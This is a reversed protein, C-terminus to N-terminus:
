RGPPLARRATKRLDDRVQEGLSKTARRNLEAAVAAGTFLPGLTTLNRGMRKLLRERLEKRMGVSLVASLGRAPNLLSVGRRQAWAGLLQTGKETVSGQVPQGYVEHLEAILKVEVAVVAVTEAAILVPASLLTPPAAWEVAAVGGGTAGIAATIRSANRILVEALADGSRGDFHRRLTDLDRVPLHPAIEVLTDLTWRTAARPSVVFRRVGKRAGGSASSALRGLLRRREGSDLDSETLRAVADPVPEAAAGASEAAPPQDTSDPRTM